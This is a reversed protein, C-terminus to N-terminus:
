MSINEGINKSMNKAFNWLSQSYTTTMDHIYDFQTIM